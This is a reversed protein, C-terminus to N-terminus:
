SGSLQSERCRHFVDVETLRSPQVLRKDHGKRRVLPYGFMV